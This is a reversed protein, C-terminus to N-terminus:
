AKGHGEEEASEKLIGHRFVETVTSFVETLSVNSSVIAPNEILGIVASWFIAKLVHLNLGERLAHERTAAALAQQFLRDIAAERAARFEKYEDPYLRSIEELRGLLNGSPLASLEKGLQNLRLNVECVSDDSGAEVAKEFISAIRQCVARVLGQKDGFYRYVTVRTIGARYAVDVLSMQRVGRTLIVETAVSVIRSYTNDVAM